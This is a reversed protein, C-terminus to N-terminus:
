LFKDINTIGKSEIVEFLDDILKSTYKKLVVIEELTLETTDKGNLNYEKGQWLFKMNKFKGNRDTSFMKKFERISLASSFM